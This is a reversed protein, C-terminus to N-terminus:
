CKKFDLDMLNSMKKTLMIDPILKDSEFWINTYDNATEKTKFNNVLERVAEPFPVYSEKVENVFGEYITKNFNKGTEQERLYYFSSKM